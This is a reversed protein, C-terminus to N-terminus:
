KSTRTIKTDEMEDSEAEEEVLKGSGQLFATSLSMGNLIYHELIEEERVLIQSFNLKHHRLM